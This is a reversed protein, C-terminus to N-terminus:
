LSDIFSSINDSSWVKTNLGEINTRDDGYAWIGLVKKGEERACTIEWKQGSSDLSNKSVLVIIGDSRKIRTRVRKKWETDYPEKVSMDIYEFSSNTNLSQGRLLDRQRQDEIAFAVFITKKDVMNLDGKEKKSNNSEKDFFNIGFYSIQEKIIDNVVIIIM